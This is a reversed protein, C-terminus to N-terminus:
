GRCVEDFQELSSFLPIAGYKGALYDKNYSSDKRTYYEKYELLSYLESEHHSNKDVFWIQDRRFVEKSLLSTDHCTVILQSSGSSSRHFVDLLFKSLLSHLKSDFEDVVLVRNNKMTDYLAGLFYIIRKTGESELDIPLLYTSDGVRKGISLKKNMIPNKKLFSGLKEAVEVLEPIDTGKLPISKEEESVEIDDIQMSSLVKLAWAKFEEDEDYLEISYRKVGDDNIGTIVNLDRFWKVVAMSVSGDFQAAVSLFPIHPKTHQLLYGEGDKKVLPKAESFSRGNYNLRQGERHFLMTERGAVTQYLWEESILRNVISVGYRYMVDDKVFTMEQETPIDYTDEKLVFPLTSIVYEADVHKLSNLVITRFSMIATAFNSKGSANPGFIGASKLVGDLGFKSFPIVNTTNYNERTSTSCALNLIQESNISKFNQVRFQILM